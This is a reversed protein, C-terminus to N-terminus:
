LTQPHDNVHDLESLLIPHKSVQSLALFRAQAQFLMVLGLILIDESSASKYGCLIIHTVFTELPQLDVLMTHIDGHQSSLSCELKCLCHVHIM